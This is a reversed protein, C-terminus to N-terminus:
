TIVPGRTPDDIWDGLQLNGLVTKWVRRGRLADDAWYEFTLLAQIRGERALALRSFCDRHQAPDIFRMERWAITMMGRREEKIPGFNDIPRTDGTTAAEVLSSLPLSDWDGPPLRMYSVALCCDDDPPQKDYFKISDEDPIVVWDQPFDFRVAGKDAVFIRCGPTAKWNHKKQLKLDERNWDSM